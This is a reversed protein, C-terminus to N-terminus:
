MADGGAKAAQRKARDPKAGSGPDLEDDCRVCLKDKLIGSVGVLLRRIEKTEPEVRNTKCSGALIREGRAEITLAEVSPRAASLSVVRGPQSAEIRLIRDDYERILFAFAADIEALTMREGKRMEWYITYGM